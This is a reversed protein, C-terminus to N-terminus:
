LEDHSSHESLTTYDCAAPTSFEMKYECRYPESVSLIKSELGCQIYVTTSRNPGNWCAIGNTYKMITYKNKDEGTWEGWSGLGVESGGQKAKQTAKQFLCLKYVYEKDELEFCEGDLTAFEENVGYDKELNQKIHKMNSDIERVTREAQTYMERAESAADVIKQTEDDYLHKTHSESEEEKDELPLEDHEDTESDELQEDDNLIEKENDSEDDEEQQIDHEQDIDEDVADHRFKGDEMMLLPKLIPWTVTVFGQLDITDKGGFFYNAEDETVVGDKDKDFTTKAELEDATLLGTKDVDLYQFTLVAEERNQKEEEEIKKQREAEDAERYVKLAENEKSEIQVKLEEKELKISEADTKDRELQALQDMMDTKKKKGQEILDSRLQSGAKHLEVLRQAEIRAERGLEECTNTCGGNSVYEDTGDCCDCVGDNVRSSPINRSRHGANTCHFVGNLCASTGPEDSGDFCDCYDDNVYSFPITVTGDFCTFDKTPIYLSAKSLSVGRPRPVDSQATTTLSCIILVVSCINYAFNLNYM